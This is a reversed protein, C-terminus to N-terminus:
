IRKFCWEAPFFLVNWVGSCVKKVMESVRKKKYSYLFDTLKNLIYLIIAISNLFIVSWIIGFVAGLLCNTLFVLIM